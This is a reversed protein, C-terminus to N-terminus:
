TGHHLYEYKLFAQKGFYLFTFNTSFTCFDAFDKSFYPRHIRQKNNNFIVLYEYYNM